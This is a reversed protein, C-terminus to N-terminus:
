PLRVERKTPGYISPSFMPQHHSTEMHDSGFCECGSIIAITSGVVIASISVLEIDVIRYSKQLSGLLPLSQLEIDIM